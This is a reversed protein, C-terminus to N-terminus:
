KQNEAVREASPESATLGCCRKLENKINWISTVSLRFERALSSMTGAPLGPVLERQDKIRSEDDAPPEGPEIGAFAGVNDNLPSVSVSRSSPL